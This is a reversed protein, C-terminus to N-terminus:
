PKNSHMLLRPPTTSYLEALARMRVQPALSVAREALGISEDLVEPSERLFALNNLNIMLDVGFPSPPRNYGHANKERPCRM